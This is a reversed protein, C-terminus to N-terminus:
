KPQRWNLFDAHGDLAAKAQNLIAIIQQGETKIEPDIAAFSADGFTKNINTVTEQLVRYANEAQARVDFVADMTTNTSWVTDLKDKIAM